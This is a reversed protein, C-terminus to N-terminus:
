AAATMLDCMSQVTNMFEIHKRHFPRTPVAVHCDGSIISDRVEKVIAFRAPDVGKRVHTVFGGRVCFRQGWLEACTISRVQACTCFHLPDSSYNLGPLRGAPRRRCSHTAVAARRKDRSVSTLTRAHLMSCPAHLLECEGRDGRDIIRQRDSGGSSHYMYYQCDRLLLRRYFGGSGSGFM